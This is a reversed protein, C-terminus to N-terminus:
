KKYFDFWDFMRSQDSDDCVTGKIADSVKVRFSRSNVEQLNLPQLTLFEIPVHSSHFWLYGRSDIFMQSYFFTKDSKYVVGINDPNLPKNINWCRVEKSRIEVFFIVGYTYDIAMKDVEHGCGRYGMIKFSDQNFKNPSLKSNKLIKTSVAYQATSAFPLYYATRDGDEDPYGLAMSMVGLPMDLHLNDFVFHSESIVPKFTEHDFAWFKDKRYDYVVLYSNFPNTIYLFLDDCSGETQFDMTMYMFGNSGKSSIRDPVESRRTIPFNKNECGDSPLSIEVLAPKQVNYTTNPYFQLVGNDLLFVRSCKEDIVTHLASIIRKHGVPQSLSSLSARLYNPKFNYYEYYDTYYHGGKAYYNGERKFYNKNYFERQSLDDENGGAYDSAQLTNLEYNPFGWIKPSSGYKYNKVCFAGVTIPVGPRCRFINVLMLGSAPHYGISVLDNNEPIHYKYPGILTNDPLPLNEYEIRKWKFVEQVYNKSYGFNIQLVVFSALVGFITLAQM